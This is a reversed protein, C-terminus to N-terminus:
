AAVLSSELRRRARSLRSMVTGEPVGLASAAERYSLGLLDVAVVVRRADEPLAAVVALTVGAEAAEAPEPRASALGESLAVLVPRRRRTRQHSVHTNRLARMLYRLEDGDRLARPRAMVRLLTEQVLDEADERHGTLRRAM